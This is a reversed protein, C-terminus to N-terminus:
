RICMLSETKMSINKYGRNSVTNTLMATSLEHLLRKNEQKLHFYRGNISKNETELTQVKSKLHSLAAQQASIIKKLESVSHDKPESSQGQRKMCLNVSTSKPISSDSQKLNISASRRKQKPDSLNEKQKELSIESPNRRKTHKIGSLSTSNDSGRPQLNSAQMKPDAKAITPTLPRSRPRERSNNQAIQKTLNLNIVNKIGPNATNKRNRENYLRQLTTKLGNRGSPEAKSRSILKSGKDILQSSTDSSQNNIASLAQSNLTKSSNQFNSSMFYTMKPNRPTKSSETYYNPDMIGSSSNQLALLSESPQDKRPFTDRGEAGAHCSPNSNHLSMSVTSKALIVKSLDGNLNREEITIKGNNQKNENNRNEKSDVDIGDKTRELEFEELILNSCIPIESLMKRGSGSARVIRALAKQASNKLNLSNRSNALSFEHLDEEIKQLDTVYKVQIKQLRERSQASKPSECCEVLKMAGKAKQSPSKEIEKLVRNISSFKLGLEKRQKQDSSSEIADLIISKEGGSDCQPKAFYEFFDFNDLTQCSSPDSKKTHENSTQREGDSSEFDLNYCSAARRHGRALARSHSM